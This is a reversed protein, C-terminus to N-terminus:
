PNRRMFHFARDAMLDRGMRDVSAQRQELYNTAELAWLQAHAIEYRLSLLTIQAHEYQLRRLLYRLFTLM